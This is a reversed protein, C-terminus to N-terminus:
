SLSNTRDKRVERPIMSVVPHIAIGIDPGHKGVLWPVPRMSRDPVRLLLQGLVDVKDEVVRM